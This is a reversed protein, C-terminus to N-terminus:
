LSQQGAADEIITAIAHAGGMGALGADLVAVIQRGSQEVACGLAGSRHSAHRCGLDLRHDDLRNALMDSRLPRAIVTDQDFSMDDAHLDM